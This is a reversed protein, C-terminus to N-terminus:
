GTRLWLANRRSLAPLPAAAARPSSGGSSGGGAKDVMLLPVRVGHGDGVIQDGDLLVGSARTVFGGNRDKVRVAAENM